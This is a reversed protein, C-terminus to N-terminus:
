YTKEKVKTPHAFQKTEEDYELYVRSIQNVVGLKVNQQNPPVSVINERLEGHDIMQKIIMFIAKRLSKKEM